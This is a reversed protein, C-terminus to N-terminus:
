LARVASQRPLGLVNFVEDAVPITYPSTLQATGDLVATLAEGEYRALYYLIAQFPSLSLPHEGGLDTKGRTILEVLAGSDVECHALLQWINTALRRRDEPLEESSWEASVADVILQQQAEPTGSAYLQGSKELEAIAGISMEAHELLAKVQAAVRNRAWSVREFKYVLDHTAISWAHQLFTKVQIEFLIEDIPRSPMDGPARLRGYLRLDDFPFDSSKKSTEADSHPRRYSIEFFQEIYEVAEAIQAWTPVVLMCAVFDELADIQAVKGSELKLAFSEDGKYRSEFHWGQPRPEFLGQVEALLIPALERQSIYAERMSQLERM